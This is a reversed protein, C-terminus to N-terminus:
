FLGRGGRRSLGSGLGSRSSSSTEGFTRIGRGSSQEERERVREAGMVGYRLADLAHDDAAPQGVHDQQYSLFEQITNTCASSVLLGPRGETDTELRQAVESIGPEIAKEAKVARWGARRFKEIDEPQHESFITGEPKGDLYRICDSVHTESRYFESLVILREDPTKGVELMVRPDRFGADYCYLRWENSEDVRDAASDPEIVHEDRSFPYVLGESQAFGGAIAQEERSTDGYQREFSEKEGESLYPNDLTSARIVEIDHGLPEGDATEQKSLIEWADNYGNGTLTWLQTQAGPESRLRSSMMEMLDHLNTSYLSPEDAWIAGYEDGAHRSWKDASGLVLETDNTLTLKHTSRNYDAVIPSQEPGNFDSTVIHTREGPLQEFLTRYTATRAESYSVGLVLFRSGPNDLAQKITFRSGGITKGSGYGGLLATIDGGSRGLADLTDRQAQWVDYYITRSDADVSVGEPREAPASERWEVSWDPEDNDTADELQDEVEALRRDRETQTTM